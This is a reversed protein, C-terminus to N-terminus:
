AQDSRGWRILNWVREHWYYLVTNAVFQIAAITGAAAINGGVSWAIIFTATSGTLRWSITKALSRVTTESM